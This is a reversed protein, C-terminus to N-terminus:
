VCAVGTEANAPFLRCAAVEDRMELKFCCPCHSRSFFRRRRTAFCFYNPAAARISVIGRSDLTLCWVRIVNDLWEVKLKNRSSNLYLM